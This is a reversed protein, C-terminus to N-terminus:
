LPLNRIAKRSADVKNKNYHADTFITVDDSNGAM